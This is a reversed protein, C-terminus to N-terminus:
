ERLGNKTKVDEAPRIQTDFKRRDGLKPLQGNSDTIQVGITLQEFWAISSVEVGLLVHRLHLFSSLDIPVFVVLQIPHLHLWFIFTIGIKIGVSIKGDTCSVHYKFTNIM